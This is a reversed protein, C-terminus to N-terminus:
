DNSEIKALTEDAKRFEPNLGLSKQLYEKAKKNDSQAFYIDGIWYYSLYDNPNYKIAQKYTRIASDYKKNSRYINAAERLDKAKRIKDIPVDMKAQVVVTNLHRSKAELSSVFIVEKLENASIRKRFFDKIYIGALSAQKGFDGDEPQWNVEIKELSNNVGIISRMINYVKNKFEDESAPPSAFVNVIVYNQEPLVTFNEKIVPILIPTYFSETSTKPKQKVNNEPIYPKSSITLKTKELNSTLDDNQRSMVSKVVKMKNFLDTYSLIGKNYNVLDDKVVAAKYEYNSNIDKWTAIVIEPSLNNSVLVSAITFLKSKLFQDSTSLVQSFNVSVSGDNVELTYPDSISKSLEPQIQQATISSKFVKKAKKRGWAHAYDGNLGVSFLLLAFLLVLNFTRKNHKCIM